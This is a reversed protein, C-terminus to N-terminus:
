YLIIACVLKIFLASIKITPITMPRMNVRANVIFFSPKAELPVHWFQPSIAFTTQGGQLFGSILLYTNFLVIGGHGGCGSKDFYINFVSHGGTGSKLLYTKFDLMGFCCGTIRSQELHELGFPSHGGQGRARQGSILHGSGVLHAGHAGQGRLTHGGVATL